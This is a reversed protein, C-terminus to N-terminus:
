DYDEMRWGTLAKDKNFALHLYFKTKVGKVIESGIWKAKLSGDNSSEKKVPQGWGNVADSYTYTGIRGDWDRAISQNPKEVDRNTTGCGVVLLILISSIIKKM